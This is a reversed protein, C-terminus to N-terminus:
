GDRWIRRKQYLVPDDWDRDVLGTNAARTAHRLRDRVRWPKGYDTSWDDEIWRCDRMRRLALHMNRNHRTRAYGEVDAYWDPPQPRWCAYRNLRYGHALAEYQAVQYPRDKFTRSM